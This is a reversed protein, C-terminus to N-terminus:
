SLLFLLLAGQGKRNASLFSFGEGEGGEGEIFSAHFTLHGSEVGFVPQFFFGGRWGRLGLGLVEFSFLWPM